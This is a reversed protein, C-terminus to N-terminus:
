SYYSPHHDTFCRDYGEDIIKLHTNTNYALQDGVREYCILLFLRCSVYRREPQQYGELLQSSSM